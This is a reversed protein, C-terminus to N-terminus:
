EGAIYKEEIANWAAVAVLALAVFTSRDIAQTFSCNGMGIDLLGIFSLLIWILIYKM